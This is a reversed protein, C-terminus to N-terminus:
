RRVQGRVRRRWVLTYVAVNLLVVFIGLGWQVNQSLGAPYLVPLLYHEVFGGAYRAEGGLSRFHNELPTLPCIGQVFEIGAGWVAAPLHVWAVRPWRLALLGGLVVFLVFGLHLVVVLDALVRYFMPAGGATV